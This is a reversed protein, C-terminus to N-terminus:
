QVILSRISVEFWTEIVWIFYFLLPAGGVFWQIETKAARIEVEWFCKSFAGNPRDPFIQIWVPTVNTEM